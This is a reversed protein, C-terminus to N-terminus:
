HSKLEAIGTAISVYYFPIYPSEDPEDSRGDDCAIKYLAKGLAYAEKTLNQWDVRTQSWSQKGSVIRDKGFEPDNPLKVRGCDVSEWLARYANTDLHRAYNLYRNIYADGARYNHEKGRQGWYEEKTPKRKNAGYFLIFFSLIHGPVGHKDLVRKNEAYM